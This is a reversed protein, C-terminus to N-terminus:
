GGHKNTLEPNFYIEEANVNKGDSKLKLLAGGKGYGVVTLIEDNLVVPTPINATNGSFKEYKWLAKGDTSVGVLGGDMSQVYQKIGGVEAIVASSYGARPLELPIACKWVTEGTKKDLAVMTADKGGPTVIVHDGDVLPSECYHWGGVSGK